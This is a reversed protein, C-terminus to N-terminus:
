TYLDFKDHGPDTHRYLLVNPSLLIRQHSQGKKKAKRYVAEDSNNHNEMLEM